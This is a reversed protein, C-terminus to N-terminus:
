VAGVVAVCHEALVFRAWSQQRSSESETRVIGGNKQEESASESGQQRQRYRAVRSRQLAVVAGRVMAM